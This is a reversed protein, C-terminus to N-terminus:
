ILKLVHILNLMDEPLDTSFHLKEHTMPTSLTVIVNPEASILKHGIQVATTPNGQANEYTWKLNKGEVYGQKELEEKLSTRLTDLAAHEVIQGVAVHVTEVAQGPAVGFFGLTLLLCLSKM